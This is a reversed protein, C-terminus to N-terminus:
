AGRAVIYESLWRLPEAHQDLGAISDLAAQHLEGARQRAGNLGLLAPYTPKNLARDAGARKGLEETSGTVDLIDDQVQFALGIYKGYHDLAGYAAEPLDRACLAGLLVSARILAGTKHIHMDELQAIDLDSGTAALDLAQGGVMGRSGAARALLEIMQVRREASLEGMAAHALLQFALTQLADGALIAAAEGFAKHCTPKGRRLADDDMAPLDDHILSYAHVCEVASAAADLATENAGLAQGAAYVLLPRVRKGGGLVSYRMAAHLAAPHTQEPPLFRDLAAEVRLQCDTSFRRFEPPSTTV